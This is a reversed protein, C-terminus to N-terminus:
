MNNKNSHTGNAFHIARFAIWQMWKWCSFPSKEGNSFKQMSFNRPRNFLDGSLGITGFTKFQIFVKQHSIKWGCKKTIFIKLRNWGTQISNKGFNLINLSKSWPSQTKDPLNFFFSKKQQQQSFFQNEWKVFPYFFINRNLFITRKKYLSFLINVKKTPPCILFAFVQEM